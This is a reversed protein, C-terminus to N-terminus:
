ILSSRSFSALEKCHRARALHLLLSQLFCDLVVSYSPWITAQFVHHVQPIFCSIGLITHFLSEWLTCWPPSFTSRSDQLFITDKNVSLPYQWSLFKVKEADTLKQEDAMCSCIWDINSDYVCWTFFFMLNTEFIQQLHPAVHFNHQLLENQATLAFFTAINRCCNSPHVVQLIKMLDCHLLKKNCKSPFHQEHGRLKLLMQACIECLHLWSERLSGLDLM